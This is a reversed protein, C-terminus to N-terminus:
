TLNHQGIAFLAHRVGNYVYHACLRVPIHTHTEIPYESLAAGAAGGEREAAKWSFYHVIHVFM